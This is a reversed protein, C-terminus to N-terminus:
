ELAAGLMVGQCYTFKWEKDIKGDGERNMGDWVFCTEPDMLQDRNWTFIKEGWELDEKKGFRQYLRFAIIAAPANAPTNKYHLQDKKWAM